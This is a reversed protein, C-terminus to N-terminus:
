GFYFMIGSFILVLLLEMLDSFMKFVIYFSALLYVVRVPIFGLVLVTISSLVTHTHTHRTDKDIVEADGGTIGDDAENYYGM